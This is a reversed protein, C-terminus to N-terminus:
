DESSLSFCSAITACQPPLFLWIALTQHGGQRAKRILGLGIHGQRLFIFVFHVAALTTKQGGCDYVVHACM